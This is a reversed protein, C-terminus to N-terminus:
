PNKKKERECKHCSESVVGGHLCSSRIPITVSIILNCTKIYMATDGGEGELLSGSGLRSM